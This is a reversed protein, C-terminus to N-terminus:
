QRAGNKEEKHTLPTEPQGPALSFDPVIVSTLRSRFSTEPLACIWGLGPSRFHITRSKRSSISAWLNGNVVARHTSAGLQIVRIKFETEARLAVSVVLVTLIM